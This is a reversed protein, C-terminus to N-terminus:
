EKVEKFLDEDLGLGIPAAMWLKDIMMDLCEKTGYKLEGEIMTDLMWKEAETKNPKNKLNRIQSAREVMEKPQLKYQTQRGPVGRPITIGTAPNTIKRGERLFPSIKEAYKYEWKSIANAFNHVPGYSMLGSPRHEGFRLEDALHELEKAGRKAQLRAIHGFEHLGTSKIQEPTYGFERLRVLAEKNKGSPRAYGRVTPSDVMEYLSMKEMPTAKIESEMLRKYVKYQDDLIGSYEKKTNMVNMAKIGPKEYITNRLREFSSRSGVEEIATQRGEEGLKKLAKSPKVNTIKAILKPPLNKLAKLVGLSTGEKALNGLIGLRGLTFVPASALDPMTGGYAIVNGEDDYIEGGGGRLMDIVAGIDRYTEQVNESPLKGTPPILNKEQWTSTKDSETVYNFILNDELNRIKSPPM